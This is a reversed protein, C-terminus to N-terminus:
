LFPFDESDPILTRSTLKKRSSPRGGYPQIKKVPQIKGGKKDKIVILRGAFFEGIYKGEISYIENGVFHGVHQHNTSFFESSKRYGIWVGSWSYLNLFDHQYTRWSMGTPYDVRQFINDSSPIEAFMLSNKWIKNLQREYEKTKLSRSKLRYLQIFKRRSLWYKIWELPKGLIIQALSTANCSALEPTAEIIESISSWEIIKRKETTNFPSSLESLVKLLKDQASLSKELSLNTNSIKDSYEKYAERVSKFKLRLTLAEELIENKNSINKLIELPIPPIPVFFNGRAKIIREIDSTVTKSMVKYAKLLNNTADVSKPIKLLEIYGPTNSLSPHIHMNHVSVMGVGAFHDIKRSRIGKKFLDLSRNYKESEKTRPKDLLIKFPPYLYTLIGESILFKISPSIIDIHPPNDFYSIPCTYLKDYLVIAELFNCFEFFTFYDFDGSELLWATCKLSTSEDIYAHSKQDIFSGKFEKLETKM